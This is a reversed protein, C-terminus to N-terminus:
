ICEKWEDINESRIKRFTIETREIKGVGIRSGSRLKELDKAIKRLICRETKEQTTWKGNNGFSLNRRGNTISYINFQSRVM